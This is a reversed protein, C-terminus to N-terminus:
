GQGTDGTDVTFSVDTQMAVKVNVDVSASMSSTFTVKVGAKVNSKVKM